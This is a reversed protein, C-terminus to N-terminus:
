GQPHMRDRMSLYANANDGQGHQSNQDEQPPDMINVCIDLETDQPNEIRVLRGEQDRIWYPMCLNCSGKLWKGIARVHYSITKHPDILLYGCLGTNLARSNEVKADPSEGLKEIIFTTKEMDELAMLIHNYGSFGDMFSLMSHVATSDVLLDNHPLPFDDKPSVKNLDRFDVCVRVKSDKKPVLVINALWEPYEVVIKLERPQDDTGFDVTEVDWTAPPVRENRFVGIQVADLFQNIGLMDMEDRYEDHPVAGDIMDTPEIVVGYDTTEDMQMQHLMHQLEDVTSDKVCPQVELGRFLTISWLLRAMYSVDDESSTFGLGFLTDHDIITMFESSGHQRKDEDFTFGTLFFDDESHSIKQHLSSPIAGADINLTGMVERQTDDYARVTQTSPGFYSSAFGLAVTTVLPFVNLVYGNDLIISSIRHGSCVITIYLPHTHDFGELPLDDISFVICTVRDVTMM